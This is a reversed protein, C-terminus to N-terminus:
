FYMRFATWITTGEYVDQSGSDLDDYEVGAMIKANDGCLYYNLGLYASHHSDGRGNSMDNPGTFDYANGATRSYRSSIRFGEEESASAYQYRFVAELQDDLIWYTPLLVFGWFTGEREPNNEPRGKNDIDYNTGNDGYVLDTLLRLKGWKSKSSLSAVWKQNFSGISELNKVANEEEDGNLIFRFDIRSKDAFRPDEFKYGTHLTYFYDNDFKSFEQELDGSYMGLSINWADFATSLSVGTSTPVTVYNSLSSREVTKIYRSSIYKEASNSVKQKGISIELEELTDLDFAKQLDIDLTSTYLNFYEIDRSGGIPSLDNEFNARAHVSFYDLFKMKAGVRFRRIEETDYNFDRTGGEFSGEGDVYAYQWQFRGYIKLEQVYPNSKNKYLTGPDDQLWTCWNWPAPEELVSKAETGAFSSSPSLGLTALTTLTILTPASHKRIPRPIM